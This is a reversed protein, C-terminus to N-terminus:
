FPATPGNRDPDLDLRRNFHVNEWDGNTRKTVDLEVDCLHDLFRPLDSLKLLDLGCVALDHKLWRLSADGALVSTKWLVRGRFTPDHILLKWKLLPRGSRRATGLAVDVVAVHYRGDPVPSNPRPAVAAAFANDLAALDLQNDDDDDGPDRSQSM